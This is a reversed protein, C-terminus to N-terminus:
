NPSSKPCQLSTPIPGNLAQLFELGVIFKVKQLSCYRVTAMGLLTGLVKVQVVKGREIRDQLEVRLGTSSIDL